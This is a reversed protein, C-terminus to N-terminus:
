FEKERLNRLRREVTRQTAGFLDVLEPITIDAKDRIADIIKGSMKGVDGNDKVSAKGVDGIAKGSMENRKEPVKGSAKGVLVKM